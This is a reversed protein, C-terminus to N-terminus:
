RAVTKADSDSSQRDLCDALLRYERAMRELEERAGPTISIAAQQRCLVRAAETTEEGGDDSVPASM